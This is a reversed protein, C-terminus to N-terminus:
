CEHALRALGPWGRSWLTNMWDTPHSCSGQETATTHEAGLQPLPCYPRPRNWCRVPAPGSAAVKGLYVCPPCGPSCGGDGGGEGGGVEVWEGGIRWLGEASSCLQCQYQTCECFCLRVSMSWWPSTHSRVDSAGPLSTHRCMDANVRVTRGTNSFVCLSKYLSISFNM